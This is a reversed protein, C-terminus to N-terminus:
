VALTSEDIPCEGYERRSRHSQKKCRRPECLFLEMGIAFVSVPEASCKPVAMRKGAGHIAPVILQLAPVFPKDVPLFGERYAPHEVYNRDCQDAVRTGAIAVACVGVANSAARDTCLYVEHMETPDFWKECATAAEQIEVMSHKSSSLLEVKSSLQTATHLQERGVAACRKIDSVLVM